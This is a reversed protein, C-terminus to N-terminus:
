DLLERWYFMGSGPFGPPAELNIIEGGQKSIILRNTVDGGAGVTVRPDTPLGTGIDLTREPGGSGDTFLGEGCEVKFAWLFAQGGIECPDLSPKPIYSNVIVYGVFIEVNTVWKEGEEGVIYYGRSGSIDSCANTNTLNLLDAETVLAQPTAAQEWLDTEEIVYFRNNDDSTGADGTFLLQHREGTGFALWIKGNKRTGAPPYYISKYFDNSGDSYVPAQFIKRFQWDTDPQAATTPASLQLPARIVWKWLNGGLDGVYIVDAYGDFDLDLVSPSSPIAFCMNNNPVVSAATPCSSGAALFKQEALVKGTRVDIIYISRGATATASYSSALEGTVTTPNPDGTAAYGGTVIAVWREFGAGGNNNLGVNVKIRTIIPQAWTQGMYALNGGPDNESPFEWAYGPYPLTTGTPFARGDSNTVDLAYYHNGGQRLGGVLYTRWESGNALPTGTTASTYYWIDASQASGDVYHTRATPFDIPLKRINTRAKWPM